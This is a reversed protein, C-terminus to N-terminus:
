RRGANLLGTVASYVLAIGTVVSFTRIARFPNLVVLIGLGLGILALTAGAKEKGGSLALYLRWASVAIIVAGLAIAIMRQPARSYFLMWIGAIAAAAGGAFLFVSSDKRRTFFRFIGYAGLLLLAIGVAKATVRLTMGPSVILLVGLIGMALPYGLDRNKM